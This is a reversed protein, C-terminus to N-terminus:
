IIPMEDPDTIVSQVKRCPMKLGYFKGEYKMLCSGYKSAPEKIRAYDAPLTTLAQDRFQGGFFLMFQDQCFDKLLVDSSVKNKSEPYTAAIFYMNYGKGNKFIESLYAFSGEPQNASFEAYDEILILLPKTNQRIFASAAKVNEPNRASTLPIGHETCYQNRYVKRASIEAALRKILNLINQPSCDLVCNDPIDSLISSGLEFLSSESRKLVILEMNNKAIAFLINEMVPAVGVPNGFYIPLTYLQAFPMSVKRANVIDYGLPIRGPPLDACFDVYTEDERIVSLRKAPTDQAYAASYEVLKASIRQLREVEALGCFPIATQYEMIHGDLAFLGRGANGAPLLAGRVGLADSYAYRDKMQLTFVRDIEQRCRSPLENLNCCSIIFKIGSSTYDRLYEHFKYNFDMGGKRNTLMAYNDIIVFIMPLSASQVYSDYNAVGVNNFLQKRQDRLESLMKWFRNIEADDEDTLFAGCHPTKEFVKLSGGSFDLIYYNVQNPSYYKSLSYLVSSLLCSKGCGVSGVVMLNRMKQLDIQVPLMKQRRPDDAMGIMATIASNNQPYAFHLAELDMQPELPPNWLNQPKINNQAALDSLYQVVSILQKMDTKKKRAKPTHHHFIQGSNDLFRVSLDKQKTLQEQPEYEAGCWASQGIAFYENYGVQLYFRGTDKLEAAEPRKLMDMSDARDQVRLCVRFKTNSRIQDNVVGAPKQTALILHVGLSRGIRAASILKEMFEPQQQKLEAFEDSVIFLHPMPKSVKGARYLKQYAYIDITGENTARKVENFVIQRRKIESEISMLSRQISPGDLNTITGVLHPLRIGTDPNEFAGALGGGKYDILVFAVEDPHYNVAMSLIYTILFESKGSGTMGAVLGHPGQHKEHLDLIFLSGDQAVGVPAALSKVPNNERWRKLPNLHAVKGAQFMELFTVTKPFQQEQSVSKISLNALEKMLMAMRDSDYYDPYFAVDGDSSEQMTVLTNSSSKELNIIKSCEKPLDEFAAFVSFGRNSNAHMITKIAEVSNLLKKDLAIIIHYPRNNLIQSLDPTKGIDEQLQNRIYEGLRFAESENTAIYRITRQDNWTHPLYRIYDFQTLDDPSLLFVLKVEDYSHFFAIQTILQHILLLTQDRSGSIGCVRDKIASLTIPIEELLYKQEVLQYMKEELQDTEIEFRRDPYEIITSPKQSGRGIRLELFDADQPRREWIHKRFDSNNVLVSVDPYKHRLFLEEERCARNIERRKLELYETYKAVRRSEYDKRQGESYNSSLIPFLLSSLLMTYNGSMAAKGSMVMSSGMRLMLPIQAREMSLPPPEVTITKETYQLRKRPPRNFFEDHIEVPEQGSYHCYGTHRRSPTRLIRKNIVVHDNPNNVSIFNTGILIQLGMIYVVDGLHLHAFEVHIGNVFLIATHTDKQVYWKGDKRSLTAHKSEVFGSNYFIDNAESNGISIDIESHVTYNTFKIRNHTILHVFLGYVNDECEVELYQNDAIPIECLFEHRVNKFFGPRKCCLTWQDNKCEVSLFRHEFKDSLKYYGDPKAPLWLTSLEQGFSFISIQFGLISDDIVHDSSRDAHQEQIHKQIM